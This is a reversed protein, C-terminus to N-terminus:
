FQALFRPDNESFLRIDPVGFRLLALREIGLGWAYGSYEEPDIGGNKLVEPHVMGAGTWELWGSHKCIRCGKGTCRLCEIDVEVGPEVFPFYSPRFRTKIPVQLLKHCFEDMTAFLDALSVGKDIYLGEIQHFFVHSRATITENRYVTGPMVVRLPPSNKEMIRLQTNSTHTRLLHNESVYFTDQMDRAPHDKPFNLGEFNYYDSDIDPGLQVSFGMERFVGLAESLVQSIPHIRGLFNKKGPLTIDIKESAIRKELEIKHFAKEAEDLLREFDMKLENVLKGVFPREESPINRLDQMLAQVPGKRGLFQVRLEEVSSVTEVKSLNTQFNERLQQFKDRMLHYLSFGTTACM